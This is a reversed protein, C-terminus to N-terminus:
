FKLSAKAGVSNDDFREGFRGDYSLTLTANTNLIAGPPALFTVGASVDGVANGLETTTVFSPVGSASFVFNSNLAFNDDGFFTVGGRVFSRLLTGNAFANQHGIELAPTASFITEDSGSVKLAANSGHESFGNIHVETVDLDIMPKAYWPGEGIQYAARLLGSVYGLDNNSRTTGSFTGFSMPRTTDYWSWGGTVAGAVLLPGNIYKAVGGIHARDGDASQNTDTDLNARDFGGAFGLRWNPGLAGQVGGSV